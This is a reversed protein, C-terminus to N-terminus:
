DNVAGGDKGKKDKINKNRSNNLKQKTVAIKSKAILTSLRIIDKNLEILKSGKSKIMKFLDVLIGNNCAYSIWPNYHIVNCTAKEEIIKSIEKVKGTVSSYKNCVLVVQKGKCLKMIDEKIEKFDELELISQTLNIVVTDANKLVEVATPSEMDNIDYVIFDYDSLQVVFDSFEFMDEDSFNPKNNTFVFVGDNIEKCYDSIAEPQIAGERLLKVLQTPTSTKDEYQELGFYTYFSNSIANSHTLLVKKNMNGLGLALLSSTITNGNHNAHPSIVAVIM